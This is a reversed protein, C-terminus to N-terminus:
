RRVRRWETVPKGDQQRVLLFQELLPNTFPYDARVFKGRTEKREKAAIFVTEAVEFLDLVEMCHVLEHQNRAMMMSDVKKRLRRLHNLGAQLLTESRVSGAYDQMVQGLAINVEQWTAGVERGRINDLLGNKELKLFFLNKGKFVDAYFDITKTEGAKIDM